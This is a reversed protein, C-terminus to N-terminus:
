NGSYIHELKKLIDIIQDPNLIYGAGDLRIAVGPMGHVMSSKKDQAITLAGKEKLLKLENSGDSGMGTLLMAITQKGSTESLSQFLFKVSPCIVSEEKCKKLQIRNSSIGMQFGNPAFYITGALVTEGDTAVKVRNSSYGSLWSVLSPLFGNTIHQVVLVPLPFKEPLKSFIKKLVEPGGTSIGIALYKRGNLESVAPLQINPLDNATETKEEYQVHSTFNRKIVKIGAFIKVMSVMKKVLIEEGAREFGQPKEIVTLAGAALAEMSVKADNANRSATVVIIPVPTSSMIRRTAELGNMVPMDIDMTILDPKQRGVFEVAKKGDTLKGIIEIEPDSSLIYELYESVTPSDDVILVKVM